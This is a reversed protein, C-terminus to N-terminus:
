SGGPLTGTVVYDLRRSVAVVQDAFREYFRTLLAVDIGQAVTFPGGPRSVETMVADHLRDIRDDAADLDAFVEQTPAAIAVQLSRAAAEALQGMEAFRPAIEDPAAHAPHRRRALEAIHRTLDGMRAIKQAARIATVVARLDRAMPAQLTLMLLAHEECEVAATDLHQDAGIVREAVTLDADILAQTAGQMADAALGCMAALEVGLQELEGQFRARM